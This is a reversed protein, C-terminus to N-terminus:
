GRLRRWHSVCLDWALLRLSFLTVLVGLVVGQLLAIWAPGLLFPRAFFLAVFAALVVLSPQILHRLYDAFTLGILRNALQQSLALFLLSTAAIVGTVGELGRPVGVFHMAPVLVALSFLSWYFSWDSRGKAMFMSGVMTGVVKFLTALALLRLAM